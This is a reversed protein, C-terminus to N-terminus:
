VLLALKIHCGLLVAIKKNLHKVKINLIINAMLIDANTLKIVPNSHKETLLRLLASHHPVARMLKNRFAVSINIGAIEIACVFIQESINVFCIKLSHCIRFRCLIEDAFAKFNGIFALDALNIGHASCAAAFSRLLACVITLCVFFEKGGAQRKESNEYGFLGRLALLICM